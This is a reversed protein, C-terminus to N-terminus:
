KLENIQDVSSPYVRGYHEFVTRVVERWQQCLTRLRNQHVITARRVRKPTPQGPQNSYIQSEVLAADKQLSEIVTWLSPNSYGVLQEFGNNWLEGM